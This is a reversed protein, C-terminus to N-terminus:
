RMAWTRLESSMRTRFASIQNRSPASMWGIWTCMQGVADRRDACYAYAEVLERISLRNAAEEPSIAIHKRM